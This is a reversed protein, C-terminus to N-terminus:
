AKNVHLRLTNGEFSFSLEIGTLKTQILAIADGITKGLCYEFYEYVNRSVGDSCVQPVELTFTQAVWLVPFGAAAWQFLPTRLTERSENLLVWLTARDAAEKNVTAEHSAMLEELTAIHPPEVPGTAASPFM